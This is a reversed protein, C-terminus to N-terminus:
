DDDHGRETDLPPLGCLERARDQCDACTTIRGLCRRILRVAMTTGCLTPVEAGVRPTGTTRVDVAHRDAIERMTTPVDQWWVTTETSM